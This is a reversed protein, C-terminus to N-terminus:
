TNKGKKKREFGRKKKKCLKWKKKKTGIGM